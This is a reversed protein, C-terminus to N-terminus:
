LHRNFFALTRALAEKSAKQNYSARTDNNFGHGADYWYIEVEPHAAQVKAIDTEPIHTDQKGAKRRRVERHSRRLLGGRRWAGAPNREVV